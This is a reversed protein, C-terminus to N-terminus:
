EANDQDIGLHRKIATIDERMLDMDTKIERLEKHYLGLGSIRWATVFLFTFFAVVSLALLLDFVSDWTLNVGAFKDAILVIQDFAWPLAWLVGLGIILYALIRAPRRGLLAYVVKVTDWEEPM